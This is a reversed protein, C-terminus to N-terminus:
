TRDTSTGTIIDWDSEQERQAVVRVEGLENMRKASLRQLASKTQTLKKGDSGSDGADAQKRSHEDSMDILGTIGSAIKHLFNFRFSEFLRSWVACCGIPMLLVVIRM